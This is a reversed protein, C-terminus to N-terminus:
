GTIVATYAAAAVLILTVLILGNAVGRSPPFTAHRAIGVASLLAAFAVLAGAAVYFPTKSVEEEVLHEQAFLLLSAFM